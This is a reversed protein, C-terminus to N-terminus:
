VHNPFHRAEGLVDAAGRLRMTRGRQCDSDPIVTHSQGGLASITDITPHSSNRAMEHCRAIREKCTIVRLLKQNSVGGCGNSFFFGL